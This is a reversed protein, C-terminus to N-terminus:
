WLGAGADHQLLIGGGGENDSGGDRARGGYHATRDAGTTGGQFHDSRQSGDRHIIVNPVRDSKGGGSCSPQTNIRTYAVEDPVAEADLQHATDPKYTNTYHGLQRLKHLTSPQFHEALAAHNNNNINNDDPTVTKTYRGPQRLKHLTSSQFCEALAAHNNENPRVGRYRTVAGTLEAAARRTVVNPRHIRNNHIAAGKRATAPIPVPSPRVTETSARGGTPTSAGGSLPRSVGESLPERVEGMSSKGPAMLTSLNSNASDESTVAVSSSAMLAKEVPEEDNM